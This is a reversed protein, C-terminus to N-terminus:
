RTVIPGTEPPDHARNPPIESSRGHRRRGGCALQRKSVQIEAAVRKTFKRDLVPRPQGVHVQLLKVLQKGLWSRHHLKDAFLAVALRSVQQGDSRPKGPRAVDVDGLPFPGLHWTPIRQQDVLGLPQGPPLSPLHKSRAHRPHQPCVLIERISHTRRSPPGTGLTSNSVATPISSRNPGSM